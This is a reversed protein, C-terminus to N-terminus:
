KTPPTVVYLREQDDASQASMLFEGRHNPRGAWSIHGVSNPKGDIEIVQGSHLLESWGNSATYRLVASSGDAATGAVTWGGADDFTPQSITIAYGSLGVPQGPLNGYQDMASRGAPDGLAVTKIHGDDVQVVYPIISRDAGAYVTCSIRGDNDIVPTDAIARLKGDGPIRDIKAEPLLVQSMKGNATVTFVGTPSFNSYLAPKGYGAVFAVTGAENLSVRPEWGFGLTAFQTPPTMGPVSDGTEVLKTVKDSTGFWLTQRRPRGSDDDDLVLFKGGGTVALIDTSAFRRTEVGPVTKGRVFIPNWTDANGPVGLYTFTGGAFQASLTVRGDALPRDIFRLENEINVEGGPLPEGVRAVLDAKGDRVVWIASAVLPSGTVTIGHHKTLGSVIVGGDPFCGEITFSEVLMEPMAPAPKGLTFVSTPGSASGIFLDKGNPVAVTGTDSLLPRAYGFNGSRKMPGVNVTVASPQTAAIKESAAPPAVTIQQSDVLGWAIGVCALPYAGTASEPRQLGHLWNDLSSVNGTAAFACAPAGFITWGDAGNGTPTFRHVVGLAEDVDGILLLARVIHPFCYVDNWDNRVRTARQQDYISLHRHVRDADGLRGYLEALAIRLETNDARINRTSITDCQDALDALQAANKRDGADLLHNAVKIMVDALPLKNRTDVPVQMLLDLARKSQGNGAWWAAAEAGSMPEPSKAFVPMKAPRPEPAISDWLRQAQETEGVWQLQGIVKKMCEHLDGRTSVRMKPDCLADAGRAVHEALDMQGDGTLSDVLRDAAIWVSERVKQSGKAFAFLADIQEGNNGECLAELSKSILLGLLVDDGKAANKLVATAQDPQNLRYHLAALRGAALGMAGGDSYTGPKIDIDIAAGAQSMWYDASVNSNAAVARHSATATFSAVIVVAWM